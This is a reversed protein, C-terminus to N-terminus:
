MIEKMDTRFLHIAAEFSHVPFSILRRSSERRCVPSYSRAEGAHSIGEPTQRGRRLDMMVDHRGKLFQGRLVLIARLRKSFSCDMVNASEITIAALAAQAQVSLEDATNCQESNILGKGM